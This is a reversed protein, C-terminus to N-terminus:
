SVWGPRGSFHNLVTPKIALAFPKFVDLVPSGTYSLAISRCKIFVPICNSQQFASTSPLLCNSQYQM